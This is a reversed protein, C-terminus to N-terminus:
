TEKVYHHRHHYHHKPIGSDLTINSSDGVAKGPIVIRIPSSRKRACIFYLNTTCITLFLRIFICKELVYVM